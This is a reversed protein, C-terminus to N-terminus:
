LVDVFDSAITDHFVVGAGVRRRTLGAGVGAGVAKLMKTTRRVDRLLLSLTVM